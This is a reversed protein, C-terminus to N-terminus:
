DGIYSYEVRDRGERKARYLAADAVHLLDEVADGQQPFAALGISASLGSLPIEEGRLPIRLDRVAQLVRDSIALADLPSVQPLLAVFEEGGFRGITDYERLEDGLLAAVAKLVADGVLHGHSDNISKFNDMDIILMAANYGERRSRTLEREALEQWTVANLLGTKADTTAAVQLEKTLVSRQLLVMPAIVLVMFFPQFVLCLAVMAGLCLTALEMANERWLSWFAPTKERGASVLMVLYVLGINTSAYVLMAAAIVLVALAGSGIISSSGHMLSRVAEHAVVGAIWITAATFFLRHPTAGSPKHHRFWMHLRVVVFLVFVLHLPLVVAASFTWVSTLDAHMAVNLRFRMSEVHASIEEFVTSAVLLGVFLWM